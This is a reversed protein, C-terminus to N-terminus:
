AADTAVMSEARKILQHHAYILKGIQCAHDPFHRGLNILERAEAHLIQGVEAPNTSVMLMWRWARLRRWSIKLQDTIEIVDDLGCNGM